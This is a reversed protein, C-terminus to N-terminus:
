FSLRLSVLILRRACLELCKGPKEQNSMAFLLGIEHSCFSFNKLHQSGVAEATKSISEALKPNGRDTITKLYTKLYQM